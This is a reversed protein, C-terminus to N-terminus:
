KLNDKAWALIAVLAAVAGAIWGAFAWAGKARSVVDLILKVDDRVEGLDKEIQTIREEMRAEARTHLKLEEDIDKVWAKVTDCEQRSVLEERREPGLYETTM